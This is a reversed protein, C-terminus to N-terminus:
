RTSVGPTQRSYVTSINNMSKENNSETIMHFCIAWIANQMDKLNGINSRIVMGYYNQIKVVVANTLRGRGGVTKGDPLKRGRCKNKCIRLSSGMRKEYTVLTTRRKFLIAM